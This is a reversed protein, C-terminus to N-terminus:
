FGDDVFHLTRIHAHAVAHIGIGTAFMAADITICPIDVLVPAIAGSQIKFPLDNDLFVGRLEQAFKQHMFVPIGCGDHEAPIGIAILRSFLLVPERTGQKFHTIFEILRHPNKGLIGPYQFIFIQQLFHRLLLNDRGHDGNSGKIFVQAPHHFGAGGGGQM